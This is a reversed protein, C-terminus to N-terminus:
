EYSKELTEITQEMQQAAKQLTVTDFAFKAGATRFLVPLPVTGGLALAKRYSAIAQKRDNLSNNWVQAAGLQALGYEVYYFPIQHIHHKRHWGTMKVDEYGRWDIYPRFRDELEAWKADCAGPDKGDAVNEYVWHQFADVIAMYPWFLLSQELHETQARAAEEKSYFGGDKKGLFHLSLFEMGMSAVEAFEMPIASEARQQFYPLNFCEFAHFAHGGEHLVSQVDDHIGVANAFIFPRGTFAFETCYAGNAKNKRNELDLLGEDDMQTFYAAFQPHVKGFISTAGRKLEDVDSFPQLPEKDTLDVFIDCYRLTDLGLAERRKEALRTAIPVVAEEIANQFTKCDEPTYDFRLMKQWQYDRFSSLDANGAIKERLEMFQIWLQNIAERDEMQRQSMIEWGALRTKPNKERLTIEMQRVTKEEDDWQVTQAGTLKDFANSLKEEEIRLPINEKRFLQAQARMNRLPIELGDISLGSALLKKKLNQEATTVNPYIEEMYANFRAEASADATNVSVSVYARNYIEDQIESLTTWRSMWDEINKKSLTEKELDKYHPTLDKWSLDLLGDITLNDFMKQM